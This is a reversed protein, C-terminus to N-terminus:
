SNESAMWQIMSVRLNIRQNLETELGVGWDFFWSQDVKNLLRRLATVAFVLFWM